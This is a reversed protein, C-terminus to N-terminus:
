HGALHASYKSLTVPLPNKFLIAAVAYLSYFMTFIEFLCILQLGSANLIIVIGKFNVKEIIM